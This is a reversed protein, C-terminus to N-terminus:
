CASKGFFVVFHVNTLAANTLKFRSLLAVKNHKNTQKNTQKNVSFDRARTKFTVTINRVVTRSRSTNPPQRRQCAANKQSAQREGCLKSVDFCTSKQLHIQDSISSQVWVQAVAFSKHHFVGDPQRYVRYYVHQEADVTGPCMLVLPHHGVPVFLDLPELAPQFLDLVLQLHQASLSAGTPHNLFLCGGVAQGSWLAGLVRLLSLLARKSWVATVSLHCCPLLLTFHLNRTLLCLYLYNQQPFTGERAEYMDSCEPKM